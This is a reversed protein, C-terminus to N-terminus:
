TVPPVTRQSDGPFFDCLATMGATQRPVRSDGPRSHEAPRAGVARPVALRTTLVCGRSCVGVLRSAPRSPGLPASRRAIASRAAGRAPRPQAEQHGWPLPHVGAEPGLLFCLEQPPAYGLM